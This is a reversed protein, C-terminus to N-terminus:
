GAPPRASHEVPEGQRRDAARRGPDDGRRRRARGRSALDGTQKRSRRGATAHIPRADGPVRRAHAQRDRARSRARAARLLGAGRRHDRHARRRSSRGRERVSRGAVGRHRPSHPGLRRDGLGDPVRRPIRQRDPEAPGPIRLVQRAGGRGHLGGAAHSGGADRRRQLTGARGARRCHSRRLQRRAGGRGPGQADPGSLGGVLASGRVSKADSPAAAGRYDPPAQVTPRTYNPGVACASLSLFVATALALRSSKMFTGTRARSSGPRRGRAKAKKKKGLGEVFAFNGPILFVGMFTAVLMGFFVATGMVNQAGAGAGSAMMLPVVGLIFAFATMLIPRFRLRASELAAEEVSM